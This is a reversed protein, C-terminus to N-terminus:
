VESKKFELGDKMVSLCERKMKIPSIMHGEVEDELFKLPRKRLLSNAFQFQNEKGGQLTRRM